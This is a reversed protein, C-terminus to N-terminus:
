EIKISKINTGEPLNRVKEYLQYQMDWYMEIDIISYNEINDAGGLFLPVKYGLCENYEISERNCFKLVQIFLDSSLMSETENVFDEDHLLELEQELEFYEITSIDFMIQLKNCDRSICFQRGMWDFGYPYIKSKHGNFYQGIISAWQISSKFTHVRYLGNNLTKGGHLELLEFLSDPNLNLLEKDNEENQSITVEFNNIFKEFM